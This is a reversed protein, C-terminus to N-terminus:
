ACKNGLNNLNGKPKTFVGTNSNFLIDNFVTFTNPHNTNPKLPLTITNFVYHRKNVFPFDVGKGSIPDIYGNQLINKWIYNAKNDIPIAYFPINLDIETGGTANAYIIEDEFDRIKIPVFPTYKFQLKKTISGEKYPFDVFYENTDVVEEEFNLNVYNVYDGKLVDGVNQTGSVIPTLSVVVPDGTYTKGTVSESQGYFNTSPKYKFYLYFYNIPKGFADVMSEIDFDVNFDFAYIVNFYMNTSYGAKYVEVNAKNTIVTYNRVFTEPSLTTATLAYCLYIDFCSILNKTLGALEEGLRPPTFFDSLGKYNNHLGNIISMFDIRGYVRYSESEQRESNFLDSVNISSSENFSLLEKQSSTLELGVYEDTNVANANKKSGLQIQFSM